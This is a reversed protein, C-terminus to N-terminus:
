PCVYKRMLQDPMGSAEHDDIDMGHTIGALRRDRRERQMEDRMKVCQAGHGAMWRAGGHGAM